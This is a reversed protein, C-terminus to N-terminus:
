KKKKNLTIPAQGKAISQKNVIDMEESKKGSRKTPKIGMEKAAFNIKEADASTYALTLLQGGIPGVDATEIDPSGALLLGFRYQLYPVNGNDLDPWSNAGTAGKQFSQRLQTSKAAETVIENIKM